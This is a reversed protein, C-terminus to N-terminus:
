FASIITISDIATDAACSNETILRVEWDGLETFTYNLVPRPGEEYTSDNLSIRWTSSINSGTSTETWNVETNVVATDVLQFVANPENDILITDEYTLTDANAGCIAILSVSYLGPNSYAHVAASDTSSQGDGFLWRIGDIGNTALSIFSISDGVCGVVQNLMMAAVPSDAVQITDPYVMTDATGCGASRVILTVVYSGATDYTYSPSPVASTDGNGFDWKWSTIGGFNLNTFAVPHPACGALDSVTFNAKAQDVLVARRKEEPDSGGISDFVTLLVTFHGGSDYTHVIETETTTDITGDGFDWVWLVVPGSSRDRFNVTFGNAGACGSDPSVTFDATPNGAITIETVETVLEDCGAVWIVALATLLVLSLVIRFRTMQSNERKIPTQDLTLKCCGKYM